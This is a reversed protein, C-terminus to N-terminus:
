MSFHPSMRMFVGGVIIGCLVSVTLKLIIWGVCLPIIVMIEMANRRIEWQRPRQQADLPLRPFAADLAKADVESFRIHDCNAPM